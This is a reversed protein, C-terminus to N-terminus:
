NSKAQLAALATGLGTEVAVYFEAYECLRARAESDNSLEAITTDIEAKAALTRKQAGSLMTAYANPALQFFDQREGAKGTRKILGREELLRVSTSISARSVNLHDSLDSFSMVTGDFVLMGFIRGAIRPLGEAQGVLGIKEIFDGRIEDDVKTM